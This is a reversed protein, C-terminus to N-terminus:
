SDPSFSFESLHGLSHLASINSGIRAIVSATMLGTIANGALQDRWLVKRPKPNLPCIRSDDCGWFSRRKLSSGHEVLNIVVAVWSLLFYGALASFDEDLHTVASGPPDHFTAAYIAVLM